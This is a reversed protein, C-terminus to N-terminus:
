GTPQYNLWPAHRGAYRVAPQTLRMILRKGPVEVFLFSAFSAAMIIILTLMLSVLPPVWASLRQMLSIGLVQHLLYLSYSAEGLTVFFRTELIRLLPFDYVFLMFIGVIVFNAAAFGSANGVRFGWFEYGAYIAMATALAIGGATYLTWSGDLKRFYFLCGMVFYPMYEILLNTKLVISITGSGAWHLLFSLVLLGLIAMRLHRRAILYVVAALAYFRIEVWLTWYSGDVWIFHTHLIHDFSDPRIFFISSLWSGLSAHWEPPGFANVALATITACLLMAPWLRALRRRAFDVVGSCRQLTFLIVFGSIVFFFEVGAWGYDLLPLRSFTTGYPYYSHGQYPPAWIIAYHYALVALIAIARFGDLAAIRPGQVTSVEKTPRDVSPSLSLVSMIGVM